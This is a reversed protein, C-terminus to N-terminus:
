NLRAPNIGFDAHAYCTSMANQIMRPVLEIFQDTLAQMMASYMTEAGLAFAQQEEPTKFNSQKM